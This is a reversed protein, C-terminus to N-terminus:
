GCVCVFVCFFFALSGVALFCCYSLPPCWGLSTQANETQRHTDDSMGGDQTMLSQFFSLLFDMHTM